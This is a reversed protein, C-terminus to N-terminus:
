DYFISQSEGHDHYSSEMMLLSLIHDHLYPVADVALLREYDRTDRESPEDITRDLGPAKRIVVADPREVGGTTDVDL